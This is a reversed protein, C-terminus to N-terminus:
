KGLWEDIERNAEEESLGKGDLISKRAEELLHAESESLQYIGNVVQANELKLWAYIEALLHEDKVSNIHAILSERIDISAM